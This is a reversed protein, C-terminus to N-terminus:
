VSGVRSRNYYIGSRNRMVGLSMDELNKNIDDRRIKLAYDVVAGTVAIGLGIVNGIETGMGLTSTLASVSLMSKYVTGGFQVMNMVFEAKQQARLNGTELEITSIKQSLYSKAYSTIQDVAVYKILQNEARDLKKRIRAGAVASKEEDVKSTDIIIRYQNEM